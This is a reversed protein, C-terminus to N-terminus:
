KFALVGHYNFIQCFIESSTFGIEAYLKQMQAITILHFDEDFREYMAQSQKPHLGTIEALYKFKLGDQQQLQMLDYSICLGQPKLANYIDIYFNKKDEVFHAVLISLAADFQQPHDELISTDACMLDIKNPLQAADIKEKVKDIMHIAPDIATFQWDPFQKALEILEHGTGCGVILVHPHTALHLKLLVQIQQHVLEYAPILKRIHQDYNEVVQPQNFDKAM